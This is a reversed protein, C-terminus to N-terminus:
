GFINIGLVALVALLGKERISSYIKSEEEQVIVELEEASFDEPKSKAIIIRTKARGIAKDRIARKFKKSISSFPNKM